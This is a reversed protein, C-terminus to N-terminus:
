WGAQSYVHADRSRHRNDIGYQTHTFPHVHPLYLLLAMNIREMNHMFAYLIYLIFHNM